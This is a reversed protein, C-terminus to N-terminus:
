SRDKRPRLRRSKGRSERLIHGQHMEPPQGLHRSTALSTQGAQSGSIRKELLGRHGVIRPPVIRSTDCLHRGQPTPDIREHRDVGIRPLPPPLRFTRLHTYHHERQQSAVPHKVGHRADLGGGFGVSCARCSGICSTCLLLAPGFGDLLLHIAHRLVFPM